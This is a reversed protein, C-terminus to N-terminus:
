SFSRSLETTCDVGVIIPYQMTRLITEDIVHSRDEFGTDVLIQVIFNPGHRKHCSKHHNPVTNSSSIRIQLANLLSSKSRIERHKRHRKRSKRKGTRRKTKKKDETGVTGVLTPVFSTLVPTHVDVVGTIEDTHGVDKVIACANRGLLTCFVQVVYCEAGPGKYSGHLTVKGWLFLVLSLESCLKKLLKRLLLSFHNNISSM